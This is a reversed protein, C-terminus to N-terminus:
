QTIGVASTVRADECYALSITGQSTRSFCVCLLSCCRNVAAVGDHLEQSLSAAGSRGAAARM